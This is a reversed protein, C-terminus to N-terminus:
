DVNEFNSIEMSFFSDSTQLDDIAIIEPYGFEKNYTVNVSYKRNYAGQIKDFMKEVTNFEDYGDIRELQGHKRAPKVSETKNNRVKVSVPVWGYIGGGFKSLKLNYNDIKAEQWKNRNNALESNLLRAFYIQLFRLFHLASM